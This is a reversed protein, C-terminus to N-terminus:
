TLYMLFSRFFDYYSIGFEDQFSKIGDQKLFQFIEENLDKGNLQNERLAINNKVNIPHKKLSDSYGEALDHILFYKSNPPLIELKTKFYTIKHTMNSANAYEIANEAHVWLRNLFENEYFYFTESSEFGRKEVLLDLLYFITEKFIIINSNESIIEHKENEITQYQYLLFSILNKINVGRIIDCIQDYHYNYIFNLIETIKNKDHYLGVSYKKRLEIELGKRIQIRIHQDPQFM